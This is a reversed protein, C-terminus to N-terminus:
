RTSAPGHEERADVRVMRAMFMGETGHRHPMLQLCGKRGISSALVPPLHPRLDDLRFDGRAALFAAIVGETEENSYTCVSYVLTGGPRVAEACGQLLSIQLGALRTLDERSRRWKLEPRRQLTGLGSCPADVLVADSKEGAIDKLHASDGELVSINGCGLRSVADRLAELRRPNRDVAVVRGERGTMASLHTSKGGPAACADVVLSGPFPDVSHAVLMSSQDQVVCLGRELLDVLYERSINVNVVAEPLYPSPQGSGGRSTIEALLGAGDLRSTNARLALGPLANDAECLREVEGEPMRELLYDVLWRPHSYATELYLPLDERAPWRLGELGGVVTRLVANVYSSTGRHLHRKALNVTENVAAHSPIRMDLIQYIGIRLIDLMEPDLESPPRHSFASIVYDLRTRHRQVGYALEAVLARERANLGSRELNYRLLLSLYGGGTEVRRILEYAIERADPM